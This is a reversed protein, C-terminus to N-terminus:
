VKVLAAVRWRFERECEGERERGDEVQGREGEVLRREREGERERVDEM